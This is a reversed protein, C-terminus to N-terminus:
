TRVHSKKFAEMDDPTSLTTCAHGTIAMSDNGAKNLWARIEDPTTTDKQRSGVFVYPEQVRKRPTRRYKPNYFTPEDDYDAVHDAYDHEEYDESRTKSHPKLRKNSKPPTLDDRGAGQSGSKLFDVEKQLKLM